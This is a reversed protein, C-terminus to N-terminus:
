RAYSWRDQVMRSFEEADFWTQRSGVIFIWLNQGGGIHCLVGLSLYHTTYSILLNLDKWNTAFTRQAPLDDRKVAEASCKCDLLKM